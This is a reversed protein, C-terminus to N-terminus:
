PPWNAGDPGGANIWALLTAREDPPMGKGSGDGIDCQGLVPPMGGVGDNMVYAKSVGITTNVSGVYNPGLWEDLTSLRAMGVYDTVNHTFPTNDTFHCGCNNALIGGIETPIQGAMDGSVIPNSAGPDLDEIGCLLSVPEGTSGSDTTAVTAATTGSGSDTAGACTGLDAGGIWGIVLALDTQLAPDDFAVGQPMRTMSIPMPPNAMIKHALYSNEVSGLEVLPLPSQTATRGIISSSNEPLLSLTVSPTPSDGHCGPTSCRADFVAQVPEPVCAGGGESGGIKEVGCASCALVFSAFAIRRM